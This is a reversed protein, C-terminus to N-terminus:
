LALIEYIEDITQASYTPQANLVESYFNKGWSVALSHCSFAHAMYIDASSDGVMLMQDHGVDTELSLLHLMETEPKASAESACTSAEILHKLSNQEIFRNLGARSLNTALAIKYGEAHLKELLEAMGEVMKYDSHEYVLTGSVDFVILDYLKM